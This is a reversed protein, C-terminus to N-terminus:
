HIAMGAIHLDLDERGRWRNIALSYVLDVREGESVPAPEGPEMARFWIAKHAEGQGDVLVMKLHTGDDGVPKMSEIKFTDSFQPSEFERGFPELADIERWTDLTLPADLTGDSWVVPAFTAPDAQDAVAKCLAERFVELDCEKVGTGAAGHHGGFHPQLGHHAENIAALAARIDVEPVSRLSGTLQGPAGPKPSFCCVPRGYTEVLRSAVIGHVGSHGDKLYVVLAAAGAKAQEAGIALAPETMAKQIERRDLNNEDLMKALRDAEEPDTTCLLNVSAMADGLRGRANIRPAIGHSIDKTTFDGEVGMVKRLANWCLRPTASNMRSLGYRLIARNNKSRGLSVADACTGVAVVDLLPALSPANEPLAGRAILRQRVACMVLWAVACGAIYPDHASDKRAPNVCALASAPPGAEPIGHHDTVVTLISKENRLRAIRAEDASGQDATICLAGEPCDELMRDVFKDSVGYGEQLRLTVFPRLRDPPLHFYDLLATKLVFLCSAGDADHDCVTAIVRNPDLIADAIANAAADIDPLTDPPDIGRVQCALGAVDRTRALRGAIVRAQLPTYGQAIAEEYVDPLQCRGRISPTIARM